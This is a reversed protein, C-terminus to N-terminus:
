RARGRAGERGLSRSWIRRYQDLTLTRGRLATFGEAELRAQARRARVADDFLGFFSSGSGSLAALRAGERVLVRRIRRGIEALEPAEQLAARELENSLIPFSEEGEVD